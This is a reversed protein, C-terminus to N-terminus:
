GVNNILCRINASAATTVVVQNVSTRDVDAYVTEYNSADYVQVIVDYTNLNHNFTHTTGSSSTGAFGQSLGSQFYTKLTSLEVAKQDNTSQDLIAMRDADAIANSIVSLSKISWAITATGNSYSVTMGDASAASSAV